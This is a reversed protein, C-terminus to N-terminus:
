QHEDRVRMSNRWERFFQVINQLKRNDEISLVGYRLNFNDKFHMVDDRIRKAEKLHDKLEDPDIDMECELIARINPDKTKEIYEGIGPVYSTRGYCSTNRESKQPFPFLNRLHYEIEGITVFAQTTKIFQYSLDSATVIGTIKGNCDRVLVYDYEAIDYAVDLLPTQQCVLKHTLNRDMCQRVSEMADGTLLRASISKWSLVGVVEQGERMVPLQSFNNSQMVTMAVDLPDDPHITVPARTAADLDGIRLTLEGDSHNELDGVSNKTDEAM